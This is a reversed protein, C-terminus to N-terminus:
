MRKVQSTGDELTVEYRNVFARAFEEQHSVLIIRGMFDKLRHLEDIMERRGDQDLGGFGEDIIVSEIRRSEQSMYQGIGLALSVAVRFRQSGSLLAVLIPKQGVESNYAMIDLAKAAKNNRGKGSTGQSQKLELRLTGGSIRDLIENASTVIGLEAQQLLYRQLHDRGLLRALDKHLEAQEAARQLKSKLGCRRNHREELLRKSNEAQRRAEDAEKQETSVKEEEQELDTIPRQAEVPIEAVEEQIQSLRQERTKQERKAENLKELREKAETLSEVEGQWYKLQEETLSDAVAQWEEPLDAKRNAISRKIEKQRAIETNGQENAQRQEDDAQKVAEDAKKKREEAKPLQKNLKSLEGEAEKKSKEATQHANRIEQAQEAPYKEELEHLRNQAPELQALLRDRQGAKQTLADLEQKQDDYGIVKKTLTGLETQTPYEVEFCSAIEVITAPSIQERYIQPLNELATRAQAEASAQDRRANELDQESDRKDKELEQATKDLKKAKKVLEKHQRAAKQHEEEAKKAEDKARQLEEELRRREEGLHEPTLPQGCYSCTPKGEVENLRDLRKQAEELLTGTKTAHQHLKNVWTEAEIAQQEVTTQEGSLESLRTTLESIKAEAAKEQLKAKRWNERAQAFQKLWPLANKLEALLDVETELRKIQEDLDPSYADLKKALENLESRADDLQKLEGMPSALELLAAQAEEKQAQWREQQKKLDELTNKALTLEGQAKELEEAWEEAKAKHNAILEDSKALHQQERFLYELQPLVGELEILRKADQEIRSAQAMLSKAEELADAIRNQETVLKEWNKAHVKLAALKRLRKQAAKSKENAEEIAKDLLDIEGEDVPALAKLEDQFTEAKEKLKKHKEYAREYLCQYASLDVIQGLMEHRIRPDANLMAESNGQQLLVSATFTDAKLGIKDTIWAEFGKETDTDSEPLLKSKGTSSRPPEIRSIQYTGRGRRPLTRKARYLIDGLAFDVEVVLNDAQQNILDKKNQEGLRSIGYLAFTIADFIASKGAGNKGSLAWLPAGDFLLEAGNRYSMFGEVYVRMPIM